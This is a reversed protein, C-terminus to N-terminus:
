LLRSIGLPVSAQWLISNLQGLPPIVISLDCKDEDVKMAIKMAKTLVRTNQGDGLSFRFREFGEITLDASGIQPNKM